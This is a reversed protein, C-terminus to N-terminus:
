SQTEGDGHHECSKTYDKMHEGLVSKVLLRCKIVYILVCAKDLAVPDFSALMGVDPIIPIDNEAHCDCNPSVDCILSIHFCPRLTKVCPM